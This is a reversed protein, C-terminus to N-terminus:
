ESSNEQERLTFLTRPVLACFFWKIATRMIASRSPRNLLVRRLESSRNEIIVVESASQIIFIPGNFRMFAPLGHPWCGSSKPQLPKGSPARENQSKLAGVVWPQLNSNAVDLVPFATDMDYPHDTGFIIPDVGVAQTILPTRPM